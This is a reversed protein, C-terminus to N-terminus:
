QLVGQWIFIDLLFNWCSSLIQIAFSFDAAPPPFSGTTITLMRSTIASITLTTHMWINAAMLVKMAAFRFLWRGPALPETVASCSVRSCVLFADRAM